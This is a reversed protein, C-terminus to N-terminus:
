ISVVHFIVEARAAPVLGPKEAHANRFGGGGGGGEGFRSDLERAPVRADLVFRGSKVRIFSTVPSLVGRPFSGIFRPSLRPPPLPSFPAARTAPDRPTAALQSM